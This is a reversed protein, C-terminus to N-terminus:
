GVFTRFKSISPMAPAIVCKARRVQGCVPRSIVEPAM